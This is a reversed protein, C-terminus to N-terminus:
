CEECEQELDLYINIAERILDSISTRQQIAKTRLREYQDSDIDGGSDKEFYKNVAQRVILSMALRTEFSEKRIMEHEDDEFYVPLIKM